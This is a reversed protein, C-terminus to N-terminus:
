IKTFTLSRLRNHCSELSYSEYKTGKDRILVKDERWDQTRKFAGSGWNLADGWHVLVKDGEVIRIGNRDHLPIDTDRTGDDDIASNIDDLIRFSTPGADDAVYRAVVSDPWYPARVFDNYSVCPPECVTTVNRELPRPYIAIFAEFEERTVSKFKPM